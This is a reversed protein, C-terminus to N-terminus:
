INSLNILIIALIQLCDTNPNTCIKYSKPQFEIIIKPDSSHLYHDVKADSAISDWCLLIITDNISNKFGYKTLHSSNLDLYLFCTKVSSVINKQIRNMCFTIIRQFSHLSSFSWIFKSNIKLQFWFMKKRLRVSIMLCHNCGFSDPLSDARDESRNTKQWNEESIIVSLIVKNFM